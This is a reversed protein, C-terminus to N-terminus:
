GAAREDATLQNASEDACWGMPALALRALLMVTFGFFPSVCRPFM